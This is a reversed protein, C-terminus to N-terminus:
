SRRADAKLRKLRDEYDDDRDWRKGKPVRPWQEKPLDLGRQVAAMIATGYREIVREQM